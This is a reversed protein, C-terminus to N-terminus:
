FQLTQLLRFTGFISHVASSGYLVVSFRIDLSIWPIYKTTAQEGFNCTYSYSHPM